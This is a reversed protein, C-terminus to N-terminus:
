PFFLNTNKVYEQQKYFAQLSSAEYDVKADRCIFLAKVVKDHITSPLDHFPLQLHQLNVRQQILEEAMSAFSNNDLTKFCIVIGVVLCVKHHFFDLVFQKLEAQRTLELQVLLSTCQVCQLHSKAQVVKARKWCVWKKESSLHDLFQAFQQKQM